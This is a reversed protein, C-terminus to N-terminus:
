ARTGSFTSTGFAGLKVNGSIADGAVKGDFDLQIPMPSTVKASWKVADGDASGNEIAVSGMNGSMNGTLKGGDAKLELVGGQEGMPTKIKLNWKGDVGM